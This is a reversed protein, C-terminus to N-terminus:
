PKRAPEGSAPISLRRDLHAQIEEVSWRKFDIGCCQKEGDDGYPAHVYPTYQAHNLWLLERLADRELQLAAIQAESEARGAEFAGHWAIEAGSQTWSEFTM